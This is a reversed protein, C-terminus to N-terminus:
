CIRCLRAYGAYGPLRRMICPMVAPAFPMYDLLPSRCHVRVPIVVGMHPVKSQRFKKRDAQWPRAIRLSALASWMLRGQAGNEVKYVMSSGTCWDRSGVTASESTFKDYAPLPPSHGESTKCIDEMGLIITLHPIMSSWIHPTHQQSNWPLNHAESTKLLHEHGTLRAKLYQCTVIGNLPNMFFSSLHDLVTAPLHAMYHTWIM